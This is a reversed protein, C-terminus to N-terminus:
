GEYTAGKVDKLMEKLSPFSQGDAIGHRYDRKYSKYGDDSEYAMYIWNNSYDYHKGHPYVNLMIGDSIGTLSFNCIRETADSNIDIAVALAARIDGKTFM